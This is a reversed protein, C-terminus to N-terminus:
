RTRGRLNDARWDARGKKRGAHGCSASTRLMGRM